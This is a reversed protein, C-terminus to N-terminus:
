MFDFLTAQRRYRVTKHEINFNDNLFFGEVAILKGKEDRAKYINFPGTTGGKENKWLEIVTINNVGLELAKQNTSVKSIVKNM